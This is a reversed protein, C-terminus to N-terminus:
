LKNKFYRNKSQQILHERNKKYYNITYEKKYQPSRKRRNNVSNLEDMWYTEREWSIDDDCTELEYIISHELHLQKSSTNRGLRKDTKHKSLRVHLPKNTSGVYRLDNIDEICYIKM